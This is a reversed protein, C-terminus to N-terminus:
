APMGGPPQSAAGPGGGAGAGGLSNMVQQLMANKNAGRMLDQVATKQVGPVEASPPVYKSIGSIASAIAKYPESGVPLQPLAQNLM